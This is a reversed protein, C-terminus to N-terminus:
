VPQGAAERYAAYGRVACRLVEQERERIFARRERAMSQVLSDEETILDDLRILAAARAAGMAKAVAFTAATEMDVGQWGHRSWDAIVERSEALLAPTSFIAHESCAIGDEALAATVASAFGPTADSLIGKALYWDSVGDERQAHRPVLVDGFAMGAQLAGFWGLQVVGATGAGIWTHAHVAAMPGGFAASLGVRVGGLRGTYGPYRRLPAAEDLYAAFRALTAHVDFVGVLLLLEPVDEAGIGLVRQHDATEMERYM